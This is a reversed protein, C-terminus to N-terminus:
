SSQDLVDVVSNLSSSLLPINQNFIFNSESLTSSKVGQLIALDSIGLSQTLPAILKVNVGASSDVISLDEYKLGPVNILIKDELKFDLIRNLSSNVLHKDVFGLSSDLIVFTDAGLGGSLRNGFGRVMLFDNGSGAILADNQGGILLDDGTNGTLQTSGVGLRAIVIDNGTGGILRDGDGAILLDNGLGGFVKNTGISNIPGSLLHISDGASSAKFQFPSSNSPVLDLKLPAQSSTPFANLVRFDSTLESLQLNTSNLWQFNVSVDSSASTSFVSLESVASRLESLDSSTFTEPLTLTATTKDQSLQWYSQSVLTSFIPNSNVPTSNLIRATLKRGDSGPDLYFSSSIAATQTSVISKLGPDLDALITSYKLEINSKALAGQKTAALTLVDKRSRFEVGDASLIRDFGLEFDNLTIKSGSPTSNSLIVIDRGSGLSGILSIPTTAKAFSSFDIRDDGSLSEFSNITADLLLSDNLKTSKLSTVSESYPLMVSNLYSSKNSTDISVPYNFTSLDLKGDSIFVDLNSSIIVSSDGKNEYKPYDKLDSSFVFPGTANAAVNFNLDFALTSSSNLPSKLTLYNTNSSTGYSVVIAPPLSNQVLTLDKNYDLRTEFSSPQDLSPEHSYRFQLSIDTTVGPIFASPTPTIFLNRDPVIAANVKVQVPTASAQAGDWAKVTFANLEGNADQAGKWQVKDNASILTGSATVTDWGTGNFKQLTGSSVAALQFSINSSDPDAENAAVVLDNYSIEKYIDEIAGNITNIVTLTPVDAVAAVNVKVQVTTASAQAGDWAKVTFANLEGNADQAGKWQVKENASILTSGAKVTDWGGTGNSKQLTGSSVAALQFSINSSDPDAENAAVVLDNYSIEKYIDEIAGNITSIATLTPPKAERLSFDYAVEAGLQQLMLTYAGPSLLSPIAENISVVDGDTSSGFHGYSVINLSSNLSEVTSPNADFFSGKQLAFFAKSDSGLYGDLFLQYFSGDPVTFSVFDKDNASITNYFNGSRNLVHSPFDRSDSYEIIIEYGTAATAPDGKLQLRSGSLTTTTPGVLNLNALVLPLTISSGPFNGGFDAYNFNIVKDTKIDGDVNSTDANIFSGLLGTQFPDGAVSVSLQTSDFYLSAGVGTLRKDGTSVDYIIQFLGTNNIISVPKLELIQAPYSNNLLQSLTAM